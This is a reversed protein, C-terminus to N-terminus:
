FQFMSHIDINNILVNNTANGLVNLTGFISLNGGGNITVGPKVTLTVWPALQVTSSINYPESTDAWVTDASINGIIEIAFSTASASMM